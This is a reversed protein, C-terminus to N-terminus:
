VVHPALTPRVSVKVDSPKLFSLADLSKQFEKLDNTMVNSPVLFSLGFSNAISGLTMDALGIVKGEANVVPGGSNGHNIAADTQVYSNTSIGYIGLMNLGALTTLANSVRGFTASAGGSGAALNLPNGVVVLPDGAKLKSSDGFELYKHNKVGDVHLVSIDDKANEYVVTATHKTGDAFVVEFKGDPEATVNGQDDTRQTGAIEAKNAVHFATMIDGRDNIFWGSGTSNVAGAADDVNVIVTAAATHAALEQPTEPKNLAQGGFVMAAAIFSSLIPNTIKSNM